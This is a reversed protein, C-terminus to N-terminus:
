TKILGMQLSGADEQQLRELTALVERGAGEEVPQRRVLDRLSQLDVSFRNEGCARCLPKEDLRGSDSLARFHRYQAGHWLNLLTDQRANGLVHSRRWDMCCTVLDGNWLIGMFSYLAPCGSMNYHRLQSRAADDQLPLLRRFRENSINGARNNLPNLFFDVGRSQWYDRQHLVEDKNQSLLLASIILRTTSGRRRLHDSLVNVNRLVTYVDLHMTEAYVEPTLGNSSIFIMELDLAALERALDERLLQGNTTLRVRANPNRAIIHRLRQIIKPDTLPDNNLFPQILQIPHYSLQDVISEFLADDM